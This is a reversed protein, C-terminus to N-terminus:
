DFDYDVDKPVWSMLVAEVEVDILNMEPNPTLHSEAFKFDKIRYVHRKSLSALPTTAGDVYINRVTLFKTGAYTAADDDVGDTTVVGSVKIVISPMDGATPALLNYGWVDTTAASAKPAYKNIPAGSQAVLNAATYDSLIADLSGYASAADNGNFKAADSLNNVLTGKTSGDIGMTPYYRNIYIGELAFSKITSTVSASSFDGSVTGIEIRACIPEINVTSTYKNDGAAATLGNTGYLTVKDVSGDNKYQSQVTVASAGNFLTNINGTTPYSGGALNGVITVGTVSGPVSTIEAGNTLTTAGVKNSAYAANTNTFDIEVYSMIDGGATTFYVYGDNMTVAVAGVHEGVARGPVPTDRVIKLFVSKEKGNGITEGNEKSCGVLGAALTACVILAPKFFNKM